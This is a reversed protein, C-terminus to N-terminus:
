REMLSSKTKAFIEHDIEFIDYNKSRIQKRIIKDIEDRASFVYGASMLLDETEELSLRLFLVITELGRRKTM